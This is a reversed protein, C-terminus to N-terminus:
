GSAFVSREGDAASSAGYGREWRMPHHHYNSPPPPHLHTAIYVWCGSRNQCGQCVHELQTLRPCTVTEDSKEAAFTHQRSQPLVLQAAAPYPKCRIKYTDSHTLSRPNLKNKNHNFVM